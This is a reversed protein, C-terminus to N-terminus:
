PAPTEPCQLWLQTCLPGLYGLGPQMKDHLMKKPFMCKQGIIMQRAPAHHGQKPDKTFGDRVEINDKVTRTGAYM